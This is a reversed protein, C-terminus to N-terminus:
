RYEMRHARHMKRLLEALECFSRRGWVGAGFVSVRAAGLAVDGERPPKFGSTRARVQGAGCLTDDGCSTSEMPHIENVSDKSIRGQANNSLSDRVKRRRCPSFVRCFRLNCGRM